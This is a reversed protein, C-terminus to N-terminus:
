EQREYAAERANIAKLKELDYKLQRDYFVIGNQEQEIDTLQTYCFGFMRPNDLLARGAGEGVEGESLDRIYRAGKFLQFLFADPDVAEGAIGAGFRQMGTIIAAVDGKNGPAFPFPQAGIDAAVAIM